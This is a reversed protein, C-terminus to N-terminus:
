AAHRTLRSCGATPQRRGGCRGRGCRSIRDGGKRHAPGHPRVRQAPGAAWAARQLLLRGVQLGGHRDRQQAQQASVAFLGASGGGVGLRGQRREGRRGCAPGIVAGFAAVGGHLAQGLGQLVAGAAQPALRGLHTAHEVVRQAGHLALGLGDVRQGVAQLVDALRLAGDGGLGGAAAHGDVAGALGHGLDAALDAGDHLRAAASSM